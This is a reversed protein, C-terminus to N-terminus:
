QKEHPYRPTFACPRCAFRLGFHWDGRRHSRSTGFPLHSSPRFRSSALRSGKWIRCPRGGDPDRATRIPFSPPRYRTRTSTGAPAASPSTNSCREALARRGRRPAGEGSLISHVAGLPSPRRTSSHTSTGHEDARSGCGPSTTRATTDSRMACTSAAASAALRASPSAATCRCCIWMGIRQSSKRTHSSQRWFPHSWCNAGSITRAHPPPPQVSASTCFTCSRTSRSRVTCSHEHTSCRTTESTCALSAISRDSSLASAASSSSGTSM